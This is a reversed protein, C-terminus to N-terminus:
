LPIPTYSGHESIYKLLRNYIPSYRLIDPNGTIIIQKRSRTLAVNLKRDIAKEGEYLINSLMDIQYTKNVSFSYIIIDRQSGQYREVTDITLNNLEPINLKEIEQRILAIQSRYPTIIGVSKEPIFPQNNQRYLDYITNLINTTIRAESYNTKHTRDTLDEESPIFILRQVALM